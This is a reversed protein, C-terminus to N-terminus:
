TVLLGGQSQELLEVIRGTNDATDETAEATRKELANVAGNFRSLVDASFSGFQRGSEKPQQVVNSLDPLEALKTALTDDNELKAAEFEARRDAAAQVLGDLESQLADTAYAAAVDARQQDRQKDRRQRDQDINQVAQEVDIELIKYGTLAESAQNAKDILWLLGKAIGMTTSDWSEVFWNTFDFWLLRLSGVGTNFAIQLATWLIKAAGSWDGAAISDYVGGFVAQGWALLQGLNETLYSVAAQGSETYMAWYAVGAILAASVLGIPSLLFGIATAAAGGVGILVGIATSALSAAFSVALMGAGIAGVVGLGAAITIAMERNQKVFAVVWKAGEVLNTTLWILAPALAAGIQVVSGVVAEKLEYLRDTLAAANTADQGSMTAGMEGAKKQLDAIAQGGGKLAPLMKQGAKGFVQMALAAQTGPDEVRALSDAIMRLQDDASKGDLDQVTLGLSSFADQALKSGQKAELLRKQVGIIGKELTASDTGAENMVFALSSLEEVTAGTRAAMKDWQDGRSLFTNVAAGMAGLGAASAGVLGTGIKASTAAFSSLKAKIKSLGASINDRIFASVYARGAEIQKTNGM